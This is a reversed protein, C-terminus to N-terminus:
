RCNKAARYGAAEADAVSAFRIQNALSVSGYNPCGPWSYIGSHRNGVVSGTRASFTPRSIELQANPTGAAAGVDKSHALSRSVAARANWNHEYQAVIELDRILILNEANRREAAATFNYSGTIVLTDDIVM